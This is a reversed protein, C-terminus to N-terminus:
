VPFVRKALTPWALQLEELGVGPEFRIEGTDASLGLEPHNRVIDAIWVPVDVELIAPGGEAPFNRAKLRAYEAPTQLGIDPQGAEATSFGGAPDYRSGGQEVYKADPGSALIAGARRATTGHHLRIVASAPTM